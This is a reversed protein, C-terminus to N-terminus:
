VPLSSWGEAPTTALAVLYGDQLTAAVLPRIFKISAGPSTPVGANSFRRTSYSSPSVREADLEGSVSLRVQRLHLLPSSPNTWRLVSVSASVGAM